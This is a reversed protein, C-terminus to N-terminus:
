ILVLLAEALLQPQSLFPSHDAALRVPEAMLLNRAIYDSWEPYIVHDHECLIYSAPAAPRTIAPLHASFARQKRLQKTAWTSVKPSCDNYFVAPAQAPDFITLGDDAHLIAQRFQPTNRTPAGALVGAVEPGEFLPVPACLYVLRRVAILNAVRPIVNGGRSHGVLIINDHGELATTVVNAYDDFTAAPDEIPLDIAVVRHGAAELLPQLKQWCWAGHWAGHVLAFTIPASPTLSM